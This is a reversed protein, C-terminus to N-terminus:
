VQFVVRTHYTDYSAMYLLLFPHVSVSLQILNLCALLQIQPESMTNNLFRRTWGELYIIYLQIFTYIHEPLYALGTTGSRTSILKYANRDNSRQSLM